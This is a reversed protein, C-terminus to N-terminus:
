SSVISMSTHETPVPPWEAPIARTSRLGVGIQSQDPHVSDARSDKTLGCPGSQHSSQARTDVRMIHVVGGEILDVPYSRRLGYPCAAVQRSGMVDTSAPTDAGDRQYGTPDRPRIWRARSDRGNKWIPRLAVEVGDIVVVVAAVM